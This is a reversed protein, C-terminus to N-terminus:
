RGLPDLAEPREPDGDALHDVEADREVAVEVRDRPIITDTSVGSPDSRITPLGMRHVSALGACRGGGRRCSCM